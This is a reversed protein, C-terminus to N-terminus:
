FTLCKGFDSHREYHDFHELFFPPGQLTSRKKGLQSLYSVHYNETIKLTGVDM